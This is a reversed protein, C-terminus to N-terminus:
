ERSPSEPILSVPTGQSRCRIFSPLARYIITFRAPSYPDSPRHAAGLGAALIAWGRRQYRTTGLLAEGPGCGIAFCLGGLLASLWISRARTSSTRIWRGGAALGSRVAHRLARKGSLATRVAPPRVLSRSPRLKGTGLLSIRALRGLFNRAGSVRAAAGRGDVDGEKALRSLAIALLKEDKGRCRKPPFRLGVFEVYQAAKGSRWSPSRSFHASATNEDLRPQGLYSGQSGAGLM